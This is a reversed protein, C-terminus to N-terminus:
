ANGKEKHTQRAQLLARWAAIDPPETPPALEAPSSLETPRSLKAPCALYAGLFAHLDTEDLEPAHRVFQEMDRIRGRYGLWSGEGLEAFNEDQRAPDSHGGPWLFSALPHLPRTKELDILCAEFGKATERVFVHHPYFCGHTQGARHLARALRGCAALLNQRTDGPIERWRALFVDMGRWGDLARTLLIACLGHSEKEQKRRQAFFAASLTPVGLQQCRQINRFERAFTPEGLPHSFSRTLHNCQRKLYYNRDDLKLRSVRSWGGRGTNPPAVDAFPLRWLADFSDLGAKALWPRDAAAIFDNVISERFFRRGAAFRKGRGAASGDSNIEM